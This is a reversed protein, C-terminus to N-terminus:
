ASVPAKPRAMETEIQGLIRLIQKTRQGQAIAEALEVQVSLKYDAKVRAARSSNMASALAGATKRLRALRPEAGSVKWESLRASLEHHTIHDMSRGGVSEPLREALPLAAHFAAYYARSM